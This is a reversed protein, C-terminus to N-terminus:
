VTLFRFHYADAGSVPAAEEEWGPSRTGLTVSDDQLLIRAIREVPRAVDSLMATLKAAVDANDGIPSYTLGHEDTEASFYLDIHGHDIDRFTQWNRIHILATFNGWESHAIASGVDVARRVRGADVYGRTATPRGLLLNEEQWGGFLSLLALLEVWIPEIVALLIDASWEEDTPTGARHPAPRSNSLLRNSSHIELSGEGSLGDVEMYEVARLSKANMDDSAARRRRPTGLERLVEDRDNHSTPISALGETHGSVSRADRSSRAAGISLKAVAQLIAHTAAISVTHLADFPPPIDHVVVNESRVPVLKRATHARTAESYVWDSSVSTASWIVITAKALRIQEPIVTKFSDGPLLNTDWWVAYGAEVLLAALREIIDHDPRSYSLFVDAM